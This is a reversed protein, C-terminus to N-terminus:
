TARRSRSRTATWGRGRTSGWRRPTASKWSTCSGLIEQATELDGEGGRRALALARLQKPRVAKPFRKELQELVAIAEDRCGLRILGDAAKCGLAASTQWPLEGEAFLKQLREPYGNSIAANVKAAAAKFAEDQEAAFKVAEDTLPQDVIAHLLRLLDGGNPGDPYASFDLFIRNEAFEPLPSDDLKVPIFQFGPKTTAKREMTNYERRVWDSERTADSWVLVGAQSAALADQLVTILEDGPTLAYQDLFVTHGLERLVDYLNLVWARSVSRYSLFVNYKEGNGLPRPKPALRIWEGLSM